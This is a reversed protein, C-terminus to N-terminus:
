PASTRGPPPFPPERDAGDPQGAPPQEAPSPPQGAPPQQGPLQPQGAVSGLDTPPLPLAAGPAPQGSWQGAQGVDQPWGADPATPLQGSKRNSVVIVIVVVVVAIVVLLAGLLVFLRVMAM